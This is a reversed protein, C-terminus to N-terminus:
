RRVLLDRVAMALALYTRWRRFQERDAAIDDEAAARVAALLVTRRGDVTTLRESDAEVVRAGVRDGEFPRTVPNLLLARPM